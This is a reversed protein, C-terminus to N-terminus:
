FPHTGKEWILQHKMLDAIRMPTATKIKRFGDNISLNLKIAATKSLNNDYIVLFYSNESGKRIQNFNEVITKVFIDASICLQDLEKKHKLQIHKLQNKSIYIDACKLHAKKAINMRLRGIKYYPERIKGTNM